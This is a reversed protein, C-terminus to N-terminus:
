RKADREEAMAALNQMAPKVLSSVMMRGVGALIPNLMMKMPGLKTARTLRQTYTVLSGSGEPTIEYRNVLTWDGEGGKKFSVHAETVFELASPPLAQTVVSRDRFTGDPAIGTSSWESGQRVPADEVEIATLRFNKKGRNGGWELHSRVDALLDYVAEPPAGTKMSKRFAIERGDPLVNGNGENSAM